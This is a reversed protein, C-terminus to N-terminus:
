TIDSLFGYNKFDIDKPAALLNYQYNTKLTEVPYIKFAYSNESENLKSCELTYISYQISDFFIKYHNYQTLDGSHFEFIVIPKLEKLTKKAGRLIELEVGEADIKILDAHSLSFSDLTKVTSTNTISPLNFFNKLKKLRPNTIASSISFSKDISAIGSEFYHQELTLQGKQNSLAVNHANISASVGLDYSIRLIDEFVDPNPEFLIAKAKKNLVANFAHHGWNSGIDVFVSDEKLFVEIAASVDPEYSNKYTRFYISQFQSNTDRIKFKKHGNKNLSACLLM